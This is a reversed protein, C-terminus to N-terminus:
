ATKKFVLYKDLRTNFPDEGVVSALNGEKGHLALYNAVMAKATNVVSNSTLLASTEVSAGKAKFHGIQRHNAQRLGPRGKHSYVMMISSSRQGSDGSWAFKGRGDASNDVTRNAAVGGDTLVMVVIDKQKKAALEFIRGIVEGADVDKLEGRARMGGHYDYGGLEITAAGVYGDLVLKAISATKRQDGDGAINPFVEAVLPDLRPDLVDPTFKKVQANTGEIGCQIIEKIESPLDRRNVNAIKKESLKAISGLIKQIKEKGESAYFRDMAGLSVLNLVDQPNDIKVPAVLPNLSEMPAKTKGGSSSRGSGALAALDGSAGAKHLWYIPNTQNNSTDDDSAHCIIAGEVNARTAPSSVSNIGRLIGSDGHFVLGMENNTMGANKPHFDPPLGLSQYDPLFDSQGGAGGVMVNSGPINGGGSLDIIIVPTMRAVAPASCDLAHAANSSLVGMLTPALTYVSMGLFGQALFDRRSKLAHNEHYMPGLKDNKKDTM